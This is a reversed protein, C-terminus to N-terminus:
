AEPEDVDVRIELGERAGFIFVDGGLRQVRARCNAIKREVDHDSHM